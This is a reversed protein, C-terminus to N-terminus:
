KINREPDDAAYCVGNNAHWMMHSSCWQGGVVGYVTENRIERNRSERGAVFCGFCLLFVVAVKIM